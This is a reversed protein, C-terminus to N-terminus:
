VGRNGALPTTSLREVPVTEGNLEEGFLRDQEAAQRRTMSPGKARDPLVTMAPIM